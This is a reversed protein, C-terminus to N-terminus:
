EQLTRIYAIVDLLQEDNLAPNGGKPPMAVGTTNAPDSPDRGQKVFALLEEDSQGAIFESTTMDKGLGTVGVGGEGHCAICSQNFVKEGASADGAAVAAADENAPESENGGCAGSLALLVVLM